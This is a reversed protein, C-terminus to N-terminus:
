VDSLFDAVLNRIKLENFLDEKNEVRKGRWVKGAKLSRRCYEDLKKRRKKRSVHQKKLKRM